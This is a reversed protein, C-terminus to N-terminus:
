RWRYHGALKYAFLVDEEQTGAGINHIILPTGQNNKRNSVVGIHPLNKEGVRWTVWDGAQYDSAQTSVPLALGRRKMFVELNLVRRHDINADAQSLGWRTPYQAFNKRMDRHVLEQLDVAQARMARIVVDTCVGKFLAVDGNPYPIATYEPDYRVTVGIQSRADSVLQQPNFGNAPSQVRAAQIASPTLGLDAKVWPAYYWGLGFLAIGCFVFLPKSLTTQISKM